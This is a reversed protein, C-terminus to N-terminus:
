VFFSEGSELDSSAGPTSVPCATAGIDGPCRLHRIVYGFEPHVPKAAIQLIARYFGISNDPNTTRDQINLWKFDGMYTQPKWSTGSGKTSIPQPVLFQFVSPLFIVSDTYPAARYAESLKAKTGSTAAATEYPQVETWVDNAFTWRRPLTDITHYFGRVAHNIGLAKLLERGQFAYTALNESERKIMDSTDMDTVLIFQPAGDQSGLSGGDHEAGEAILEHYIRNLIKQTLVTTPAITPMHSSAEPLGAAAVMKHEALSFYSLMAKRKWTYRVVNTLNEYALRIQEATRFASRTDNVCIELSELAKQELTYSRLTHGTPVV